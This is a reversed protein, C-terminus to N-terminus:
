QNKLINVENVLEDIKKKLVYILMDDGNSIRIESNNIYNKAEVLSGSATIYDSDNSGSWLEQTITKIDTM